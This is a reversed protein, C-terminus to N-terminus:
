QDKLRNEEKLKDLEVSLDTNERLVANVKQDITLLWKDLLAAPAKEFNHETSYTPM